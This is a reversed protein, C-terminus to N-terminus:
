ERNRWYEVVLGKLEQQLGWRIGIFGELFDKYELGWAGVTFVRFALGVHAGMYEVGFGLGWVRFGLGLDRMGIFGLHLRRRWM